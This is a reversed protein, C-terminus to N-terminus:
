EGGNLLKTVVASPNVFRDRIIAEEAMVVPSFAPTHRWAGTRLAKIALTFYQAEAKSIKGVLSQLVSVILRDSLWDPDATELFKRVRQCYQDSKELNLIFPIVPDFIYSSDGRGGSSGGVNNAPQLRTVKPLLAFLIVRDLNRFPVCYELEIGLNVLSVVQMQQAVPLLRADFPSDILDISAMTLWYDPGTSQIIQLDDICFDCITQRSLLNM